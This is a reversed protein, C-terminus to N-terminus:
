LEKTYYNGNIYQLVYNKGNITNRYVTAHGTRWNGQTTNLLSALMDLVNQKFLVMAGNVIQYLKVDGNIAGFLITTHGATFFVKSYYANNNVIDFAAMPTFNGSGDNLLVQKSGPTSPAWDNFVAIFDQHGDGNVDAVVSNILDFEFGNNVPAVVGVTAIVNLNNDLTIISSKTGAVLGSQGMIISTTNNANRVVSCTAWFDNPMATTQITFTRDNNNIYIGGNTSSILMDLDGDRDIDSYCAGHAYVQDNLDQRIFQGSNNWFIVTSALASNPADDFGPLIIDNRGDGDFDAIFIVQSGQYTRSPLVDLTKETLTGDPNQYFVSIYATHTGNDVWGGIVVDELGDNNLDGSAMTNVLNLETTSKVVRSVGAPATGSGGSGGGGGGCGTLVLTCLIIPALIKNM